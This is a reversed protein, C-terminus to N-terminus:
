ELGVDGADGGVVHGFGPAPDQGALGAVDDVVGVAARPVGGVVALGVLAGEVGEFLLDGGGFLDGPDVGEAVADGAVAAVDEDFEHFEGDLPAFCVPEGGGRFSSLSSWM